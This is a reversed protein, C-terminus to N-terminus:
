LWGTWGMAIVAWTRGLEYGNCVLGRSAWVITSIVALGPWSM